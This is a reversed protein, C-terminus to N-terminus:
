KLYDIYGEKYSENNMIDYDLDKVWGIIKAPVGGVIAGEPVSKTVVANPAITVNNQIQVPGSIIAGPGIWVNNGIKPVNKYPGKGTILVNMGIRSNEGIEVGELILTAMGKHLFYTGKGIKAKYSIHCNYFVFIFGQILKPIFPIRYKYFFIALRYFFIANPM